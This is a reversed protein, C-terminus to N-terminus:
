TACRGREAEPLGQRPGSGHLCINYHLRGRYLLGADTISKNFLKLQLFKM